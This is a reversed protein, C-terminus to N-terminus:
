TPSKPRLEFFVPKLLTPPCDETLLNLKKWHSGLCTQSLLSPLFLHNLLTSLFTPIGVKFDAYKYSENGDDGSPPSYFPNFVKQTVAPKVPATIDDREVTAVPAM